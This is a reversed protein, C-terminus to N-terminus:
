KSAKSKIRKKKTKDVSTNFIKTVTNFFNMLKKDEIASLKKEDESLLKVKKNKLEVGVWSANFTANEIGEISTYPGQINVGDGDSKYQCIELFGLQKGGITDNDTIIQSVSYVPIEQAPQIPSFIKVEGEYKGKAITIDFQTSNSIDNGLSNVKFNNIEEVNNVDRFINRKFGGDFDNGIDDIFDNFSDSKWGYYRILNFAVELDSEQNTDIQLVGNTDALRLYYYAIKVLPYVAPRSIREGTVSDIYNGTLVVRQSVDDQDEIKVGNEDIYYYNYAFIIEDGEQTSTLERDMDYLTLTENVINGECNLSTVNTVSIRGEWWIPPKDKYSDAFVYNKLKNYLKEIDKCETSEDVNYGDEALKFLYEKIISLGSVNDKKKNLIKNMQYQLSSVGQNSVDDKELSFSNFIQYPVVWSYVM